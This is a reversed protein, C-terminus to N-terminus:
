GLSASYMYVIATSISLIVWGILYMQMIVPDKFDARHHRNYTHLTTM